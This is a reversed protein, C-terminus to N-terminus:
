DREQKKRKNGDRKRSRRTNPSNSRNEVSAKILGYVLIHAALNYEQDHLAVSLLKM